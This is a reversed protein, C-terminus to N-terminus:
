ISADFNERVFEKAVTERSKPFGFVPDPVVPEIVAVPTTKFFVCFYIPTIGTMIFYIYTIDNVNNRYM